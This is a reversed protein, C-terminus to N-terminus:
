VASRGKKLRPLSRGAWGNAASVLADVHSLRVVGGSLIALARVPGERVATRIMRITAEDPNPFEQKARRLGEREVIAAV